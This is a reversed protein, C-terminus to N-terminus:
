DIKIPDAEEAKPEGKRVYLEISKAPKFGKKTPPIEKKFEFGIIDGPGVMNTRGMLYDSTVKIGVNMLSGDKQKLVFVRQDAFMADTSKKIFVEVVEGMVKDGVTKFSFWNSEPINEENFLDKEEINEISM